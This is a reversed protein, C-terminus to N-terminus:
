KKKREKRKRRMMARYEKTPLTAEQFTLDRERRLRAKLTEERVGNRRAVTVIEKPLNIRDTALAATAAVEYSLGSKVRYDFAHDPIKNKRAVERWRIYEEDLRGPRTFIAEHLKWGNALRKRLLDVGVGHKAAILASEPEVRKKGAYFRFPMRIASDLSHGSRLRSRIVEDGVLNMTAIRRQEPTMSDVIKQERSDGRVTMPVTAAKEVPWSMTRVRQEFASLTIGNTLALEAYMRFESPDKFTPTPTFVAREETWRRMIRKKYLSRSVGFREATDKHENYYKFIDDHKTM